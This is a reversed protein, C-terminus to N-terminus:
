RQAAGRQAADAAVASTGRAWRWAAEFALAVALVALFVPQEYGNILSHGLVAGGFALASLALLACEVLGVIHPRFRFPEAFGHFVVLATFAFLALLGILPPHRM